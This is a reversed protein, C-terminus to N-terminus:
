TARIIAAIREAGKEQLRPVQNIAAQEIEADVKKRGLEDREKRLQENEQKLREAEERFSNIANIHGKDLMKRTAIEKAQVGIEGLLAAVQKDAEGITLAFTRNVSNLREVEGKLGEVQQHLHEKQGKALDRDQMWLENWFRVDDKLGEITSLLETYRTLIISLSHTNAHYFGTRQSIEIMKEIVKVQLEHKDIQMAM